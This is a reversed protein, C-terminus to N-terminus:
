GHRRQGGGSDAWTGTRLSACRLACVMMIAVDGDRHPGLPKRVTGHRPASAGADPVLGHAWAPHGPQMCPTYSWRGLRIWASARFTVGQARRVRSRLLKVRACPCCIDGAAAADGAPGSPARSDASAPRNWQAEHLLLPDMPRPGAGARSNRTTHASQGGRAGPPSVPTVTHSAWPVPERAEHARWPQWHSMTGVRAHPTLRLNRRRLAAVPAPGRSWAPEALGPSEHTRWASSATHPVCVCSRAFAQQWHSMRVNGCQTSPHRRALVCEALGQRANSDCHPLAGPCQTGSESVHQVGLLAHGM